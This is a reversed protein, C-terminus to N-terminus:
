FITLMHKMLTIDNKFLKYVFVHKLNTKIFVQAFQFIQGNYTTLITIEESKYGQLILYDCLSLLYLSEYTNKKTTEESDQNFLNLKPFQMSFYNDMFVISVGCEPENHDIFYLNKSIGVINPYQKVSDDDILEKYISTRILSAIEPRMRYQTTLTVCHMNNNIMREFLSIDMNYKRSLEYVSQKPRM